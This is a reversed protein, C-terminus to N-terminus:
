RPVTFTGIETLPSTLSLTGFGLVAAFHAQYHSQKRAEM